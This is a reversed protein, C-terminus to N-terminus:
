GAEDSSEKTERLARLIKPNNVLFDRLDPAVRGDRAFAQDVDVDLAAAWAVLVKDSPTFIENRELNSLYPRSIVGDMMDVTAQATLGLEERRKKMFVHLPAPQM